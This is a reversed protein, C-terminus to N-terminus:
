FTLLRSGKKGRDGTILCLPPFLVREPTKPSNELYRNLFLARSLLGQGSFWSARKSTTYLPPFPPALKDARTRFKHLSSELPHQMPSYTLVQVTEPKLSLCVSAVTHPLQEVYSDRLWEVCSLPRHPPQRAM